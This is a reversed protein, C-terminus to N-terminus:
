SAQEPCASTASRQDLCASACVVIFATVELSAPLKRKQYFCTKLDQSGIKKTYNLVQNRITDSQMRPLRVPVNEPLIWFAPIM